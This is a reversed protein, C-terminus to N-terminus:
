QALLPRVAELEFPKSLVRYAGAQLAQQAVEPTGHATMLVIRSGPSARRIRGLLGLDSSDPLRLDLLVVDFPLNTTLITQMAAAATAAEVVECGYGILTEALSWRILAEDDVVLVRRSSPNEEPQPNERPALVPGNM